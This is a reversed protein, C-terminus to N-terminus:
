SKTEYDYISPGGFMTNIYSIIIYFYIILDETNMLRKRFIYGGKELIMMMKKKQKFNWCSWIMMKFKITIDAIKVNNLFVM